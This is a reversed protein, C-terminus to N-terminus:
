LRKTKNRKDQLVSDGEVSELENTIPNFYRETVGHISEGHLRDAIIYYKGIDKCKYVRFDKLTQRFFKMTGRSFFYPSSDYSLRKIDYITLTEM